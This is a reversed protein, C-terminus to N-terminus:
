KYQNLTRRVKKIIDVRAKKYNTVLDNFDTRKVIIPTEDIDFGLKNSLTFSIEIGRHLGNNNEILSIDANPNIINDWLKNDTM